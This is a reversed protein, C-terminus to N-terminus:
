RIKSTDKRPKKRANIQRRNYYNVYIKKSTYKHNYAGWDYQVWAPRNVSSSFKLM